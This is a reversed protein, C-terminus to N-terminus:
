FFRESVTIIDGPEIKSSPDAPVSIEKTSGKHRIDVDTDDARYTFGGALAVATLVNMGSAYPYEGPKNVEGIIYFPRYNTVVASIKPDHLYGAALKTQISNELAPITLGAAKVQGILPMRITGTGDIPYDGSLDSEGFVTIHVTDGTGLRYGPDVNMPTPTPVSATQQRATADQAYTTVATVASLGMTVAVIFLVAGVRSFINKAYIM